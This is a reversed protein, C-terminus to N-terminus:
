LCGKCLERIKLFSYLFGCKMSLYVGVAGCGTFCMCCVCLGFACNLVDAVIYLFLLKLCIFFLCCCYFLLVLGGILLILCGRVCM